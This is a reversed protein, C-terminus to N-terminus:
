ERIHHISMKEVKYVTIYLHLTGRGWSHGEFVLDSDRTQDKSDVSWWDEVYPNHLLTKFHTWRFPGRELESLPERQRGLRTVKPSCRGLLLKYKLNM